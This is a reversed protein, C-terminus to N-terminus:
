KVPKSTSKVPRVTPTALESIAAVTIRRADAPPTFVFDSDSTPPSTDWTMTATYQPMAPDDRSTIVMKCPLSPGDSRLWIQWDVKEQRFAYHECTLGEVVEAGVDFGAKVRAVLSPDNGWTFLDALPIEIDYKTKVLDLTAMITAPAPFVGYYHLIPAYMTVSKGDYYYVREQKVSKTSIKFRDPRRAQIELHGGFQVKQGSELVQEITIDSKIAFATLARLDAGMKTLAQMAAPEPPPDPTPAPTQASAVPSLCLALPAALSSAVINKFPRM